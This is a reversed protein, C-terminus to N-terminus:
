EKKLIGLYKKWPGVDARYREAMVRVIQSIHTLDHVVWTSLLERLKVVGLVPHSGTLELHLGPEILGKLKTINQSRITNFELLKQEISRVARNNLHSYRDFPTFPKSDGEQLIFELRPIWNTKEGEILHDIVESVNWTGEGENCELWGDSLGSLFYELTQPTRELIEIAEKLNFNM